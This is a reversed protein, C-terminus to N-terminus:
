PLRRGYESIDMCDCYVPHFTQRGGYDFCVNVHWQTETKKLSYRNAEFISKLRKTPVILIYREGEAWFVFDDVEVFRRYAIGILYRGNSGGDGSRKQYKFRRVEGQPTRWKFESKADRDHYSQMYRYGLKMMFEHIPQNDSDSFRKRM